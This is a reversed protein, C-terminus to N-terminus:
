SKRSTYSYWYNIDIWRLRWTSSWLVLPQNKLGIQQVDWAPVPLPVVLCNADVLDLKTEEGLGAECGAEEGHGAVHHCGAQRSDSRLHRAPLLIVKWGGVFNDECLSEGWSKDAERKLHFLGGAEALTVQEPPQQSRSGSILSTVQRQQPEFIRPHPSRYLDWHSSFWEWRWRTTWIPSLHCPSAPRTKSCTPKITTTCKSM